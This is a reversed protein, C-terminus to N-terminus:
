NQIENGGHNELIEKIEKYNKGFRLVLMTVNDNKNVPSKHSYKYFFQDLSNEPKTEKEYQRTNAPVRFIAYKEKLSQIVDQKDTLIIDSMSAELEENSMQQGEKTHKGSAFSTKWGSLWTIFNDYYVIAKGNHIQTLENAIYYQNDNYSQLTKEFYIFSIKFGFFLVFVATTIGQSISRFDRIFLLSLIILGLYIAYYNKFALNEDQSFTCVYIMQFVLLSFMLAYYRIHIKKNEKLFYFVVGIILPLTYYRLYHKLFNFAEFNFIGFHKDTELSHHLWNYPLIKGFYLYRYIFYATLPFVFMAFTRRIRRYIFKRKYREKLDRIDVYSVIILPLVIFINDPSAIINLTSWIMLWFYRHKWFSRIAFLWLMGQFLIEDGLVGAWIQTSMFLLGVLLLNVSWFRTDIIRQLLYVSMLMSFAGVAFAAKITTFKFFHILLWLSLVYLFNSSDDYCIAPSTEFCWVNTKEFNEAYIFNATSCDAPHTYMPMLKFFFWCLPVAILIAFQLRKM